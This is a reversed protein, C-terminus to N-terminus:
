LIKVLGVARLLMWYSAYLKGIASALSFTHKRSSIASKGYIGLSNGLANAAKGSSAGTRALKALANTMDILNQSVQPAQSLTNM